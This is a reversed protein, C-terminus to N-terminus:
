PVQAREALTVPFTMIKGARWIEVQVTEGPASAAVATMLDRRTILRRDGIALVIDGKRLGAEQAPSPTTEPFDNIKVESVGDFGKEYEPNFYYAAEIGIWGRVVRGHELVDEVVKRVMAVPIAFAIGEDGNSRLGVATTIGMVRGQLDILPGGSSGPNVVCDTQVFDEYFAIDLDSRGLGCVIGSTVTHGLGLPNGLAMVMQGVEPAPANLDLAQYTEGTSEIRLVALDAEPDKALLRAKRRVGSSLTVRFEEGDKVVHHNTVVVGDARVLFGSGEQLTRLRGRSRPALSRVKVVGPAVRASAEVLAASLGQALQAPTAQAPAPEAAPSLTGDQPQSGALYGAALFGLVLASKQPTLIRM